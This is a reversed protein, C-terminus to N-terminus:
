REVKGPRCLVQLWEGTASDQKQVKFTWQQVKRSALSSAAIVNSYRVPCLLSKLLDSLLVMLIRLSTMLVIHFIKVSNTLSEKYQPVAVSGGFIESNQPKKGALDDWEVAVSLYM